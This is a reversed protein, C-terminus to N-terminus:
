RGGGKIVVGEDKRRKFGKCASAVLPLFIAYGKGMNPSYNKDGDRFCYGYVFAGDSREYPGALRACYRCNECNKEM